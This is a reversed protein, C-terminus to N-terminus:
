QKGLMPDRAAGGITVQGSWHGQIQCRVRCDTERRGCRPLRVATLGRKAIEGLHKAQDRLVEQCASGAEGQPHSEDSAEYPFTRACQPVEPHVQDASKKPDQHRQSQHATENQDPLAHREVQRVVRLGM